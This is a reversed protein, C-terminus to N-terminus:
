YFGRLLRKRHHKVRTKKRDYRLEGYPGNVSSFGVTVGIGEESKEKSRVRMRFTKEM